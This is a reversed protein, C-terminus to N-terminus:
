SGDQQPQCKNQGLAFPGKGCWGPNVMGGGRGLPLAQSAELGDQESNLDMM